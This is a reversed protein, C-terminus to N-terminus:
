WSFSTWFLTSERKGSNSMGNSFYSAAFISLDGPSFGPLFSAFGPVQKCSVSGSATM